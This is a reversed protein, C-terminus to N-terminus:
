AAGGDRCPQPRSGPRSAAPLPQRQGRAPRGMAVAVFEPRTRGRARAPRRGAARVGDQALIQRARQGSHVKMNAAPKRICRSCALVREGEVEWWARRPLNGDARYGPKPLWCLHTIEVGLRQAVQWITEGPQAEVEAGDLTFRIPDSMAFVGTGNRFRGEVFTSTWKDAARGTSGHRNGPKRRHRFLRTIGQVSNMARAPATSHVRRGGPQTWTDGHRRFDLLGDKNLFVWDIVQPAMPCVARAPLSNAVVAPADGISVSFSPQTRGPQAFYKARPGHSGMATSIFITGAVGTQACTLNAM